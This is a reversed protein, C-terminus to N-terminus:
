LQEADKGGGRFEVTGLVQPDPDHRGGALRLFLAAPMSVDVTPPEDLVDTVSARGDVVVLVTRAAPGTLELRVRSGDPMAARRGVVYGMGTMVEDLCSAVHDADDRPPAGLALRMDHEHMFCDFHRIRMFRGYTEDRGVPTWSPADFDAQTMADLATLREKTVECFRDLLRSDTWPRMSQVWVENLEAIPNRLHGLHSIDAAPAPEGLLVSETGVLHALVDHVTWGPLCSAAAWEENGLSRCFTAIGEFEARLLGVTREKDVVTPM